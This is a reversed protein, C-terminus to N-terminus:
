RGASALGAWFNGSRGGGAVAGARNHIWDGATKSYKSPLVRLGGQGRVANLIWSACDLGDHPDRVSTIPLIQRRYHLPFPQM